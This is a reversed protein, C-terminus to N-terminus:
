EGRLVLVEEQQDFVELLFEVRRNAARGQDTTNDAIPRFEGYGASSFKADEVDSKEILYRVVSGARGTSLEWNSPFQATNIPRDDTHGEIHINKIVIDHESLIEGMSDLTPKVGDKIAAKGTDFLVSDMIRIMVRDSGQKNVGVQGELGASAVRDKLEQVLSDIDMKKAKQVRVGEQKTLYALMDERILRPNKGDQIAM